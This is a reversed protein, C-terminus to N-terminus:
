TNALRGVGADEYLFEGVLLDDEKALTFHLSSEDQASSIHRVITCFIAQPTPATDEDKSLLRQSRRLEGPDGLEAEM